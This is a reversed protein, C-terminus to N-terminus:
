LTSLILQNSRFPLANTMAFLMKLSNVKLNNADVPMFYMVSYFWYKHSM